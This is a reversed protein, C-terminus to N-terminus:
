LTLEMSLYLSDGTSIFIGARREFVSQKSSSTWWTPSVRPNRIAANAGWLWSNFRRVPSDPGKCFLLFSHLIGWIKEKHLPQTLDFHCTTYAHLNESWRMGVWKGFGTTGTRLALLLDSFLLTPGTQVLSDISWAPKQPVYESYRMTDMLCTSQM